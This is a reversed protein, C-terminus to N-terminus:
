FFSELGNLRRMEMELIPIMLLQKTPITQFNFDVIHTYHRALSINGDMPHLLAQPNWTTLWVWIRAVHDWDTPGNM